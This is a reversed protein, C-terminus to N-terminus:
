VAVVGAPLQGLARRGLAPRHPHELLPRTLGVAPGAGLRRLGRDGRILDLGRLREAIAPAPAQPAVDPHARLAVSEHDLEAQVVRRLGLLQTFAQAELRGDPTGERPVNM